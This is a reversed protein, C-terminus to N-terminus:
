NLSGVKPSGCKREWKNSWLEQVERTPRGKPFGRLPGSNPSLLKHERLPPACQSVGRPPVGDRPVGPIFVHFIGMHVGKPTVRPPGGKHSGVQTVESLSGMSPVRQPNGKPSWMLIFGQPFFNSAVKPVRRTSQMPPVNKPSGGQPGGRPPDEKPTWLQFVWKLVDMGPGGHPFGSTPGGIPPVRNPPSMALVRKHALVQAGGQLFGNPPVGQTVCKPTGGQTVLKPPCGKNFGGDHSGGPLVGRPPGDNPALITPGRQPVLSPPVFKPILKPPGGKASVLQPVV